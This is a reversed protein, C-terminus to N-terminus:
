KKKRRKTLKDITKILSRDERAEEIYMKIDDKLHNKIKKALKKEM